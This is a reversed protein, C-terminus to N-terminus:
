KMGWIGDEEACISQSVVPKPMGEPKGGVHMFLQKVTTFVTKLLWKM